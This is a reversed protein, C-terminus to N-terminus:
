PIVKIPVFRGKQNVRGSVIAVVEYENKENKIFIPGGSNGGETNNNSSMITGDVDLGNQSCIATSLIPNGEGRGSPYGLAYLTTGQQLKTSIERNAKLSGQQNTQIYAWDLNGDAGERFMSGSSFSYEGVSQNNELTYIRDKSRNCIFDDSTFSFSNKISKATFHFVYKHIGLNSNSNWSLWIGALNEVEPSVVLGNKTFYYDNSYYLPDSVHRATVFKGDNLLFGTGSGLTGEVITNGDETIKTMKIIYVDPHLNSMNADQNQAGVATSSSKQANDELAKKAMAIARKSNAELQAIAEKDKKREEILQEIEKQSEAITLSQEAIIEGQGVIIEGQEDIAKSQENIVFGGIGGCLVVLCALTAIATKYPRLAQQRFLSLRRSLGISGVTAKNGSPIIFGMKPGNISLQIEDGNQLYWDKQVKQGNLFTSNTDSLQVLKWQEGDKVIAAHRRSVTQFSEDFRVQCKPDRGIEIQDVIIEQSEGLKHYKSSIKHELIYYKKGSGGFVSGMGAGISGALSRKYPQTTKNAM